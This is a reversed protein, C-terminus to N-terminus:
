SIVLRDIATGSDDLTFRYRLEVIGGPFDGELRNISTAVRGDREAEILTSTYEFETTARQLFDLVESCWSYHTGSDTVTATPAFLTTATPAFLTTATAPDSGQSREPYRSVVRPLATTDFDTM